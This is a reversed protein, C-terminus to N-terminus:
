NWMTIVRLVQIFALVPFIELACLYMFSLPIRHLRRQASQYVRFMRFLGSITWITAFIYLPNILYFQPILSCIIGLICVSGAMWLRTLRDIIDHHNALQSTKPFAGAIRFMLQRSAIFGAGACVGVVFGLSSWAMIGFTLVGILHNIAIGEAQPVEDAGRQWIRNMNNKLYNRLRWEKLFGQRIWMILCATVLTLTFLYLDPAGQAIHPIGEFMAHM